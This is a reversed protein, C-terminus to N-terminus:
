IIPYNTINVWIKPNLPQIQPIEGPSAFAAGSKKPLGSWTSWSFCRSCDGEPSPIGVTLKQDTCMVTEIGNQVPTKLVM